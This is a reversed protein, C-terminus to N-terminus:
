ALQKLRARLTSTKEPAADMQSAAHTAAPEYCTILQRWKGVKFGPAETPKRIFHPLMEAAMVICAKKRQDPQMADHSQRM